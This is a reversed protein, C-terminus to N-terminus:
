RVSHTVFIYFFFQQLALRCVSKGERECEKKEREREKKVSEVFYPMIILVVFVTKYKLQRVM